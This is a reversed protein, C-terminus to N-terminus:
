PPAGMGALKLLNRRTINLNDEAANYNPVVGDGDVHKSSANMHEAGSFARMAVLTSL